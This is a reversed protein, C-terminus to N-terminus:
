GRGWVVQQGEATHLWAQVRRMGEALDIAPAFQLDARAAAMSVAHPRNIFDVGAPLASPPRGLVREGAALGAVVRKLLGAPLAPPRRQGGIQALHDFYARWTTAVGDSLNYVRGIAEREVARLVGEILTDVFLHNIVGRGGDPLMFLGRRMLQLPRVVWPLSRPGYVDGPRILILPLGHEQHLRRLADEGEIKTQCYPNNEGRRPGTEAIQDPYHFGYVMVSSLHVFAQVGAALAAQAMTATGDVNVRRYRPWDGDEGVIAATHLVVDVGACARAAADPDATDGVIVDSGLRQAAAAATPSLDLGRVQMGRALAMEAARLGIFGGIGTILLTQHTLNM